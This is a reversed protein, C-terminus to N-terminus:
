RRREETDFVKEVIDANRSVGAPSSMVALMESDIGRREREETARQRKWWEVHGEM